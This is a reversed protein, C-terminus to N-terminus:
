RRKELVQKVLPSLRDIIANKGTGKAYTLSLVQWYPKQYNILQEVILVDKARCIEFLEMRLINEVSYMSYYSKGECDGVVILFLYLVLAKHSLRGLYGGHLLEHDVISYSKAQRKMIYFIHWM